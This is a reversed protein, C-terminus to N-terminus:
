QRRAKREQVLHGAYLLLGIFPAAVLVITWLLKTNEPKTSQWVDLLAAILFAAFLALLFVGIATWM